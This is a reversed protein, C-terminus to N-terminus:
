ENFRGTIEVSDAGITAGFSIGALSSNILNTDLWIYINFETENTSLICDDIDDTVDNEFLKITQGVVATSFDGSGSCIIEGNRVGEAEWKLASINLNTLATPTIYMNLIAEVSADKLSAKSSTFLGGSRDVSPALTGTINSPETYNIDLMGSSNGVDESNTISIIYAYTMAGVVLTILLVSIISIIIKREKNM